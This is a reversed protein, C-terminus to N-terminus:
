AEIAVEAEIEVPIDFPLEALGVAALSGDARCPATGPCLRAIGM